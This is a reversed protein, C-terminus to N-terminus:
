LGAGWGEGAGGRGAGQAGRVPDAAPPLPPATSAWWVVLLSWLPLPQTLKLQSLRLQSLRLQSRVCPAEGDVSACSPQRRHGTGEGVAGSGATPDHTVSGCHVSLGTVDEHQM